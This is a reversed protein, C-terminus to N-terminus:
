LKDWGDPLLEVTELLREKQEKTLKEYPNYGDDQGTIRVELIEDIYKLTINGPYWCEVHPVYKEKYGAEKKAKTDYILKPYDTRSLILFISINQNFPNLFYYHRMAEEIVADTKNRLDFLCVYGRNRGYSIESSLSNSYKKSAKIANDQVIGRYAKFSTVHFVKERLMPLVTEKLKNRDCTIIM